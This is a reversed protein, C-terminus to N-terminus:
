LKALTQAMKVEGALKVGAVLSWMGKKLWLLALYYVPKFTMAAIVIHALSAPFQRVSYLLM